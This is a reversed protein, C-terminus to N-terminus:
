RKLYLKLAKYMIKFGFIKDVFYILKVKKNLHYKLLYKYDRMKATLEYMRVDDEGLFSTNLFTIYQYAVYNFYLNRFDGQELEEGLKVCRIINNALMELNDYKITHTISNERQRYIYFSNNYIGLSAAKLLIRASWDIDESTTNEAFYIQNETILTSKIVKNWASSIYIGNKLLVKLSDNFDLGELSIGEVNIPERYIGTKEYYEKYGFCVVDYKKRSLIEAIENLSNNDSWFDDSDIFLVYDGSINKIGANRASSLGGNSKHIVKVRKDDEAYNDCIRPSGDTSGDDVLILEIDKYTQNLISDVCEALYKEVNYVPVVVSIKM